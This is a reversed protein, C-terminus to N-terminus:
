WGEHLARIRYIGAVVPNETNPSNHRLTPNLRWRLYAGCLVVEIMSLVLLMAIAAALLARSIPHSTRTLSLWDSTISQAVTTAQAGPLLLTRAMLNM